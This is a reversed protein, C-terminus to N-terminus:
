FTFKQFETTLEDQLLIALMVKKAAYERVSMQVPKAKTGVNVVTDPTITVVFLPRICEPRYSAFHVRELTPLVAFYHCCQDIHDLPVIEGRVYGVHVKASPCKLEIADTEDVSIADPSAGILACEDSQIWGVTRFEKGVYKAVEAVGFPELENGRQMALSVYSDEFQWPECLESLLEELLTKSNVHLQSSTSGGVKGVKIKFWDESKQQIAYDIM